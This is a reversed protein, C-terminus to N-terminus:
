LTASVRLHMLILDSCNDHISCNLQMLIESRSQQLSQLEPIQEIDTGRLDLISDCSRDVSLELRKEITAERHSQHTLCLKVNRILQFSSNMTIIREGHLSKLTYLLSGRYPAQLLSSTLRLAFAHVRNPRTVFALTAMRGSITFGAISRAIVFM